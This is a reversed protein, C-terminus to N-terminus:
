GPWFAGALLEIRGDSPWPVGDVSSVPVVGRVANVLLLPKGAFDATSYRGAVVALGQDTALQAVRARGISPLIGLSLDPMRLVDGDLWAVAYRAAEAIEGGLTLLLPEDLGQDVAESVARDFATRELTKHPYGPHPESAVLMRAPGVAPLDQDDWVLTAGDWLLRVVREAPPRLGHSRAESELDAPPALLGLAACSANLRAVHRELLPLAGRMVRMTEVLYPM